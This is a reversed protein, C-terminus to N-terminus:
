QNDGTFITDIIIHHMVAALLCAIAPLIIAMNEPSINLAVIQKLIEQATDILPEIVPLWFRNLCAGIIVVVTLFYSVTFIPGLLIGHSWKSRHKIYKMYPYFFVKLIGWRQYPQSDIDLDPSVYKIGFMFVFALLVVDILNVGLASLIVSGAVAVIYGWKVHVADSPM